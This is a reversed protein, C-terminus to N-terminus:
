HRSPEITADLNLNDCFGTFEDRLRGIHV